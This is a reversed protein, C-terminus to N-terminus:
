MKSGIEFGLRHAEELIRLAQVAQKRSTERGRKALNGLSFSLSRQWPQLNGTEKAWRAIRFWTDAPVKMVESIKKRDEDDSSDIGRDIETRERGDISILEKELEDPLKLNLAFLDEWCQEKKCWETINRGGPPNTIHRHVIESAEIITDMLVPSISQEKWIRDLDIRQSTKHSILALAYTVINARYGGYQQKQVLKEAQRFLIAKAVLHEYYKRDPQFEGREQLLAMFEIFNKEAGRSVVHPLQNWTNEFKALDTKTFKQRTPNIAEFAKKRALTGEGGKEDLYQGRAREYYWRTQLQMGPPAPAWVTRSLEELKIHFPNNASFDAANVKNQSNAYLSIKPVFTDIRSADKLVTLKVQVYINSVDAKDKRYAHYISATTQGGNVIQFDRAWKIGYIGNSSIIEVKEATASLGNNYALFMHPEDIITKRIGKNVNGRVQLFSRVNRELLRPGYKGYLEVLTKGPIIALYTVYDPNSETMPLCPICGGFKNEFDVEIAERKKGSSYLRFLRQIDWVHHSISLNNESIDDISEVKVIGDTLLFLRINILADKLEHIRNALDFVPSAEELDLRYNGFAKRLFNYVRKFAADVDSKPVRTPPVEGYYISIFLDLCEENESVTYGNVKIGRPKNYYYCVIPNDIEDAGTLYEMMIETFQDERFSEDDEVQSQSIVDQQFKKAFEDLGTDIDM